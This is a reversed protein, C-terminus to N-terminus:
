DPKRHAAGVELFDNRQAEAERLRNYEAQINDMMITSGSTLGPPAFPPMIYSIIFYSHSATNARTDSVEVELGRSRSV